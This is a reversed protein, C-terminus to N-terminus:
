RWSKVTTNNGLFFLLCLFKDIQALEVLGHVQVM